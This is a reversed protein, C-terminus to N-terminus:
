QAAAGRRVSCQTFYARLTQPVSTKMKKNRLAHVCVCVGEERIRPVPASACQTRCKTRAWTQKKNTHTRTTTHTRANHPLLARTSSRTLARACYLPPQGARPGTGGGGLACGDWVNGPMALFCACPMGQPKGACAAVDTGTENNSYFSPAIAEIRARLQAAVGPHAAAVDVTEHPDALLDFLCGTAPCALHLAYPDRAASSANPFTPGEWGAGIQGGALFKWRATVIGTSAGVVDIPVESRPSTGNAGSLLPWLNVSDVPPLGSAAAAADAACFAASGGGLACYTAYWDAVHMLGGNTTGRVPQPLYGGSALSNARVGGEFKTYKGGRLPWNNAGSEDLDIPGGNDSHLVMLTDAWWGRAKLADTAEGLVADLLAVMANYQNRCRYDRPGSGPFIRATQARCVAEDNTFNFKALWEPPVQLPCHAIHPDYQLYLPGKSPDHASIAALVRDRFAYEIYTGNAVFRAPAGADSANATLNHAWLDTIAAGYNACSSQALTHDWYDIKHEYYILSSPPPPTPHPPTPHPPTPHPPTPHPSSPTLRSRM